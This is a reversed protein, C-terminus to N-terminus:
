RYSDLKGLLVKQLSDKRWQRNKGRKNNILQGFTYSESNEMRKWQDRQRNLWYWLTKIVTAKYYLRFNPLTIEGGRNQKEINNQSEPTKQIEM